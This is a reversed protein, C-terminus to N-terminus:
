INIDNSIIDPDVIGYSCNWENKCPAVGARWSTLTSSLPSAGDHQVVSNAGRGIAVTNNPVANTWTRSRDPVHCVTRARTSEADWTLAMATAHEVRRPNRGRGHVISTLPMELVGTTLTFPITSHWMRDRKADSGANVICAHTNGEIVLSMGRLERGASM